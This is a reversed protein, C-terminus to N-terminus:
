LTPNSGSHLPYCNEEFGSSSCGISLKWTHTYLYYYYLKLDGKTGCWILVHSGRTQPVLSGRQVVIESSLRHLHVYV